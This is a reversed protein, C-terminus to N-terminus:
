VDTIDNLWSHELADEISFRKSPDVMCMGRLLDWGCVDLDSIGPMPYFQVGGHITVLEEFSGHHPIPPCSVGADNLLSYLVIGLAFVDSMRGDLQNRNFPADDLFEPPSVAQTGYTVIVQDAVFRAHGFDALKANVDASTSSEILINECKVDGHYIGNAHLHALGQAIQKIIRKIPPLPIFAHGETQQTFRRMAHSWAWLDSTGDAICLLNSIKKNSSNATSIIVPPLSNAPGNTTVNTPSLWDSGFLETVLYYNESDQWDALSEVLFPSSKPLSALYRLIAIEHPICHPDISKPISKAASIHVSHPTSNPSDTSFGLADPKYILKIAVGTREIHDVAALVAGNSGFGVAKCVAFRTHPFGGSSLALAIAQRAKREAASKCNKDIKNLCASASSSLTNSTMNAKITSRKSIM